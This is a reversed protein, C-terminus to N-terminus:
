VPYTLSLLPGLTQGQQYVPDYQSPPYYKERPYAPYRKLTLVNKFVM